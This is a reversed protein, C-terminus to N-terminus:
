QADLPTDGPVEATEGGFGQGVEPAPTGFEGVMRGLFLDNGWPEEGPETFPDDPFLDLGEARDQAAMERLRKKGDELERFHRDRLDKLQKHLRIARLSAEDAQERAAEARVRLKEEEKVM